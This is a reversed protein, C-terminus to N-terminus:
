EAKVPGKKAERDLQRQVDRQAKKQKAEHARREHRNMKSIANIPALPSDPNNHCQPCMAPPVPSTDKFGCDACVRRVKPKLMNDRAFRPDHNTHM